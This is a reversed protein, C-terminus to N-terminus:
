DDLLLLQLIPMLQQITLPSTPRPPPMVPGGTPFATAFLNPGATVTSKLLRGLYWKTADNAYVNTVQKGIGSNTGNVDLATTTVTGVNGYFDISDNITQSGPMPKGNLDWQRSSSYRPYVVYRRNPAVTCSGSPSTSTADLAFCWYDNTSIGLNEPTSPSTGSTSKVTMGVAPFVLSNYTRTTLGTGVDTTQTWNFGLFGRGNREVRASDYSYITSRQVGSGDFSSTSTVVQMPPTVTWTNTDSPLSKSYGGTTLSPTHGRIQPLTLRGWSVNTNGLGNFIATPVDGSNRPMKWVKYSGTDNLFHILDVGGDGTSDVAQWRGCTLCADQGFTSNVGSVTFTGDGKSLWVRYDDSNATLHVLDILGDGNYDIARWSGSSFNTDTPTTFQQVAFAGDGKSLYTVVRGPYSTMHVVDALGDGNVDHVRWDGVYASGLLSVVDVPSPVTTATFTGDENPRLISLKDCARITPQQPSPFPLRQAWPLYVIDARGDGDVDLVQSAGCVSPDLTTLTSTFAGSSSSRWAYVKTADAFHVLDSLGDGNLDAIQWTGATLALDPGAATAIPQVSFTGNGNSLWVRYNGANDLLHLLDVRGDGNVDVQLWVGATLGVDSSVYNSVAFTEDGNSLWVAYNGSGDKLHVFDARGDGNLEMTQWTGCSVLCADSSPATRSVWSQGLLPETPFTMSTPPLCQGSATCLTVSGIRSRGSPGPAPYNLTYVFVNVGASQTTISNLRLKNLVPFGAHYGLNTDSRLSDYAFIVSSGAAGAVYAYDIRQPAYNGNVVGGTTYTVTMANGKTDVVKNLAWERVVAPTKGVVLIRSDVTNGFEMTLGAKTKVIFHSPGGGAAAGIATVKSFSEIETRYESGAAGYTGGVLMLKQGDMCFRDTGAYKVGVAVGDQPITAPCRSIVSLGSLNWGVGLPGNGSQSNYNLALTPEMGAIGPPVQMPISYTAAGGPSVSFTGPMSMQAQALLPLCSAIVVLALRLSALCTQTM